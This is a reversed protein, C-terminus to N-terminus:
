GRPASIIMNAIKQFAEWDSPRYDKYSQSIIWVLYQPGHWKIKTNSTGMVLHKVDVDNSLAEILGMGNDNGRWTVDITKGIIPIAKRKITKIEINKGVAVLQDDPVALILEEKLHEGHRGARTWSVQAWKIPGDHIDIIGYSTHFRPKGINEESRRESSLQSSVGFSALFDHFKGSAAHGRKRRHRIFYRSGLFVLIGAVMLILLGIFVGASDKGEKAALTILALVPLIMMIKSSM